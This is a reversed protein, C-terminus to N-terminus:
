TPPAYICWKAEILEPIIFCLCKANLLDWLVSKYVGPTIFNDCMSGMKSFYILKLWLM